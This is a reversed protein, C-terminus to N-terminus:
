WKEDRGNRKKRFTQYILVVALAGYALVTLIETM